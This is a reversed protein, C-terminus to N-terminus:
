FHSSVVHKSFIRKKWIALGSSMEAELRVHMRAATRFLQANSESFSRNSERINERKMM